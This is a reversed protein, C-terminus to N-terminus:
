EIMCARLSWYRLTIDSAGEFRVRAPHDPFYRSSMVGEGHNIFIEVSSRDCLVRLHRVDGLWYRTLTEGTKLSARELRLGQDDVTLRLTGGFDVNVHSTNLEFELRTADLEPADSAIGQWRQERERM